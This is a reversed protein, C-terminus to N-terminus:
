VRMLRGRCIVGSPLCREPATFITFTLILTITGFVRRRAYGSASVGLERAWAVGVLGLANWVVFTSFEGKKM